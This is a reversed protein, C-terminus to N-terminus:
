DTILLAGDAVCSEEDERRQTRRRTTIEKDGALECLPMYSERPAETKLVTAAQLGSCVRKPDQRRVDPGQEPLLWSHDFRIRTTRSLLRWDRVRARPQDSAQACPRVAKKRIVAM